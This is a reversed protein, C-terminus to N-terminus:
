RRDEEAGTSAAQRFGDELEEGIRNLADKACGPSCVLYTKPLTPISARVQSACRPGYVQIQAWGPPVMASAGWWQGSFRQRKGCGDCVLEIGM